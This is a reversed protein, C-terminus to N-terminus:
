PPRAEAEDELDELRALDIAQPAPAPHTCAGLKPGSGDRNPPPSSSKDGTEPRKPHKLKGGSMGVLMGVSCGENEVCSVSENPSTPSTPGVKVELSRIGPGEAVQEGSNGRTRSCLGVDGVDGDDNMLGTDAPTIGHPHQHPHKPPHPPPHERNSESKRSPEYPESRPAAGEM